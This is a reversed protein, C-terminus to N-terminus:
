SGDGGGGSDGGGGFDGGGFDGGGGFDSGSSNDTFFDGSGQSSPDFGQTDFNGGSNDASGSANAYGPDAAQGGYGPDVYGGGDYGGGFGPNGYQGAYNQYGPMDAAYAYPSYGGMGYAPMLMGDLLEAGVFGAVIGSGYGGWGANEYRWYDRYPDYGDYAYWPLSRGGTQFALVQPMRGQRLEEAEEPTALVQRSQGGVTVTVPVLAGLPAPRGSFFSVGRQDQPIADVQPQSNPLFSGRGRVGQPAGYSRPTGASQNKKRAASAILAIIGVVVVLFVIGLVMFTGGHATGDVRSAVEQALQATGSQPNTAIASAYQQELRSRESADLATTWVTVGPNPGQLVVLILPTRDLNLAKSLEFAYYARVHGGIQSRLQPNQAEAHQLNAVYTPPLSSLIAIKAATQSGSQGAAQALVHPDIGNIGPQVYVNSTALAQYAQDYQANVPAIDTDQALVASAALLIGFAFLFLPLLLPVFHRRLM